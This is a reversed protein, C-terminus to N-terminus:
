VWVGANDYVDGGNSHGNMRCACCRAMMQWIKNVFVKCHPQNAMGCFAVLRIGYFIFPMNASKKNFVRFVFGRLGM